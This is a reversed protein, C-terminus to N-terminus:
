GLSIEEIRLKDLNKVGLGMATGKKIYTLDDPNLGFLTAAYSDASIIDPSAIITDAKRVDSLNGGTPGHAMLMRVADIIVLKSRVRSNLDALRQGLNSHMAPRDYIVGMMNKMGLTLRALEHHKAIPVNILVDADLVEDYIRASKLDKGQPIETDVFKLGSMVVMTGGAKQVESQIGSINYAQEATGGFPFDMVKVKKAGAELALKVIGAVVWPNTTAAYEYNHYAVCINPKVVVVDGSKVFRAMGGLASLAARVMDEPEGNRAVVLDPYSLSTTPAPEETPRSTPQTTDPVESSTPEPSFATPAIKDGSLSKTLLKDRGLCGALYLSGISGLGASLLRLFIKRSVETMPVM